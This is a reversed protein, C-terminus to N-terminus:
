KRRQRKCRDRDRGRADRDRSGDKGDRLLQADREPLTAHIMWDEMEDSSMHGHLVQCM